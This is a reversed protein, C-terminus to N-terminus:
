PRHPVLQMWDLGRRRREDVAMALASRRLRVAGAADSPRRRRFRVSRVEHTVAFRGRIADVASRGGHIEVIVDCSRLGPVLGPDLLELEAGEVDCLVLAPTSLVTRLEQVGCTGRISIRDAVGNTEAMALCLRRVSPDAEFATVDAEPLRLALGVSYYGEGAGLNVVRRPARGIAAEIWPQIELEYTGLLKPALVSGGAVAAPYRMGPFPGRQVVRGTMDAVREAVWRRLERRRERNRRLWSRLTSM